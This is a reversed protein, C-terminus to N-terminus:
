AAGRDGPSFRDSIWKDVDAELWCRRGAVLAPKPFDGQKIMRWLQTKSINLGKAKLGDVDIVRM